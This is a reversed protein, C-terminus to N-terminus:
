ATLSWPKLAKPKLTNPSQANVFKQVYKVGSVESAVSPYCRKRSSAKAM